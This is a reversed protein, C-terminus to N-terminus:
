PLYEWSLIILRGRELRVRVRIIQQGAKTTIFYEPYGIELCALGSRTTVQGGQRTFSATNCLTGSASSAVRARFLLEFHGGPPIVPIQSQLNWSWTVAQGSVVPPDPPLTASITEVYSLGVPLVDGITIIHVSQASTNRLLIQYVVVEGPQAQGSVATRATKELVVDYVTVENSSSTASRLALTGSEDTGTAYGSWRNVGTQAPSARYQWTFTISAGPDLSAVSPPTPGGTLTFLPPNSLTLSSPTVNLARREGLNQVRMRVSVTEGLGVADPVADLTSVLYPAPVITVQNSTCPASSISAGTNGDQGSALGSWEVTGSTLGRYQWTLDRSSNGPITVPAGSPGELLVVSASGAPTLPSPVVAVASADGTNAVTMTLYLTAGTPALLPRARLICSLAAPRQIVVSTPSAVASVPQGSVSDVGNVQGNWTVTGAGAGQYTWSFSGSEGPQLAPLSAPDPGSLLTASGSGSLSPPAPTIGNAAVGGRNTVQLQITFTQGINATAPGSFAAQLAAPAAITVTNSTTPPSQVGQGTQSDTGSVFGTWRVQGATDARYTWSFSASEGPLLAALSAPAPGSLLSASGTGSLGLTSPTVNLAPNLGVNTVNLTVNITMGTVVLAPVAQLSARLAAVGVAFPDTVPRVFLVEQAAVVGVFDVVPYYQGPTFAPDLPAARFTLSRRADVPLSVPASLTAQYTHTGDSFHLTTDTSLSIDRTGLNIADLSFTLTEGPQGASPALTGGVYLPNANDFGTFTLNVYGEANLYRATARANLTVTSIPATLRVRAYGNADTIATPSALTGATSEFSIWAGSVPQNNQTLQATLLTTSSGDAPLTAPQATLTVKYRTVLVTPIDGGQYASGYWLSTGFDYPTDVNVTPGATFALTFRASSGPPMFQGSNPATFTMTDKGPTYAKNWNGGYGGYSGAENITWGPPISFVVSSISTAGQNYVTFDITFNTSGSAIRQPSPIVAYRALQGTASTATNTTRGDKDTAYGSFWFSDGLDGTIRYTWEFVGLSGPPISNIKVPTPGRVLTASATGGATLTPVVNGASPMTNNQVVMWVKIEQGSVASLSSLAIRTTWAGIWVTESRAPGSTVFAGQSAAARFLVDGPAQATYTYVITRATGALLDATPPVPGAVPTLQGSGTYSLAPTIGNQTVSSRNSVQVEVRLTAGVALSLPLPFVSVALAKRPWAPLAGCFFTYGGGKVSTRKSELSDTQDNPANPFQGNSRGIVPVWFTLSGGPRINYPIGTSSYQIWTQGAGSEKALIKWGTPANIGESLDYVSADFELTVTDISANVLTTTNTVTFPLLANGDGMTVYTDPPLTITCTRTAQALVPYPQIPLLLGLVLFLLAVSKWKIWREM